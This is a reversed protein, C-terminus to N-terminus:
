SLADRAVAALLREQRRWMASTTRGSGEPHEWGLAHLVGHITLRALEERVGVGAARANARAVEPAIYIDGIVPSSKAARAHELTVIDTVGAHGVHVKHIRAIARASVFTVGIIAARCKEADLVRRVITRVREGGLPSRAGDSSM